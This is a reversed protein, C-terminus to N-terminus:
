RIINLIKEHQLVIAMIADVETEDDYTRVSIDLGDNDEQKENVENLPEQEPASLTQYIKFLSMFANFSMSILKGTSLQSVAIASTTQAAAISAQTLTLSQYGTYISAGLSIVMGLATMYKNGTLQGIGAIVVGAAAIIGILQFAAIGAAKAATGATFYTIIAAIIIVVIPLIPQWWEADEHVYLEFMDNWYDIFNVKSMLTHGTDINVLLMLQRVGQTNATDTYQPPALFLCIGKPFVFLKGTVQGFFVAQSTMDIIQTPTGLKEIYQELPVYGSTWTSTFNPNDGTTIQQLTESYQINALLPLEIQETTGDTYTIIAYDVGNITDQEVSEVLKTGFGDFENIYTWEGTSIDQWKWGSMTVYLPIDAILNNDSKNNGFMGFSLKDLSKPVIYCDDHYIGDKPDGKYPKHPDQGMFFQNLGLDNVNNRDYPKTSPSKINWRKIARYNNGNFSITQGTLEVRNKRWLQLHLLEYMKSYAIISWFLSYTFSEPIYDPKISLQLHKM